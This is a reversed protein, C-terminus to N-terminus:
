KEPVDGFVTDCWVVETGTQFPPSSGFGARALWFRLSYLRLRIGPCTRSWCRVGLRTPSAGKPIPVRIRQSTGPQVSCHSTYCTKFDKPEGGEVVDGWLGDEPSKTSRVYGWSAAGGPSFFWTLRLEHHSDNYFRLLAIRSEGDSGQEYGEFALHAFRGSFVFGATGISFVAAVVVSLASRRVLRSQTRRRARDHEPNVEGPMPRLPEVNTRDGSGGNTM